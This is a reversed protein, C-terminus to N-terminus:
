RKRIFYDMFASWSYFDADYTDVDTTYDDLLQENKDYVMECLSNIIEQCSEVFLLKNTNILYTYALTREKFAVKKCDGVIINYGKNRSFTILGNRIVQAENDVFCYKILIGPYMMKIEQVLDDYAEYLMDPDITGKAHVVKKYALRVQREYNGMIGTAVFASHSKTGGVDLGIWIERIPLRLADEYTIVWNNYNNAFQPYLLGEARTWLGRIFRDYYVTGLYEKKLNEVFERPLFPNDDINYSQHYIDAGSELFKKFWHNPSDPNCTGDFLSNECRLRSKLMQFVEENWTTVEDGYAYEITAGQIKSVQNVKDAGLCYVKKGFLYATNDNSINSVLGNGYIERMPDLMNRSLTSKTNGLMVILGKSNTARIRKPIMYFDLYSKGSGTAGTKVNWRQNANRWYDKQMESLNFM